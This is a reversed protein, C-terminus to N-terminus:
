PRSTGASQKPGAGKRHGLPVYWTGDERELSLGERQERGAGDKARVVVDAFDPGFEHGVAMDVIKLGRGGRKEVLARADERTGEYGPRGLGALADPDRANLADVYATATEKETRGREPSDSGCGALALLLAAATAIGAAHRTRHTGM